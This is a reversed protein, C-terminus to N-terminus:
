LDCLCVVPSCLCVCSVCLMLSSWFGIVCVSLLVCLADSVIMWHCLCVCSVCLTQSSGELSVLCLSRRLRDDLSVSLCLVCLADSIIMLHCLGTTVVDIRHLNEGAKTQRESSVTWAPVCRFMCCHVASTLLVFEVTHTLGGELPGSMKRKKM